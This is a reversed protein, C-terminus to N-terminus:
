SQGRSVTFIHAPKTHPDLRVYYSVGNKTQQAHKVLEGEIVSVDGDVADACFSFGRWGLYLGGLVFLLPVALTWFERAFAAISLGAPVLLVAPLLRWTASWLLRSKQRGAMLGDRNAGLSAPDFGLLPGLDYSAAPASM